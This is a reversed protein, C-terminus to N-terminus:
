SSLDQSLVLKLPFIQTEYWNKITSTNYLPELLETKSQNKRLFQEIEIYADTASM